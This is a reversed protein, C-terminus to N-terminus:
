LLENIDRFNLNKVISEKMVEDNNVCVTYANASDRTTIIRYSHGVFEIACNNDIGILKQNDLIRKFRGDLVSNNYHPYFNLPIFNLCSIKIYKDDDKNDLKIKEEYWFQGFCIAGASIGALVIEREYAENLIKDMNFKKFYEMLVSTTGGGIYIIDSSFVKERIENETPTEKVLFLVDVQCQYQTKFIEKILRYNKTEDGSATPIYLVKPNNKNSLKIIEKEILNLTTGLDVGGIAVIRGM